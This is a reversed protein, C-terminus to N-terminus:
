KEGRSGKNGKPLPLVCKRIQEKDVTLYIDVSNPDVHGLTSSIAPLSVGAVLMRSAANHRLLRTGCIADNPQIIGAKLFAKAIVKRCATHTSIPPFPANYSLFLFPSGTNPRENLIYEMIANGYTARLPINLEESTKAQVIHIYDM